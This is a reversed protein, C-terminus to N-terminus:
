QDTLRDPKSLPKLTDEGVKGLADKIVQWGGASTIFVVVGIVVERPIPLYWITTWVATAILAAVINWNGELKLHKKCLAVTSVVMAGVAAIEGPAIGYKAFIAGFEM